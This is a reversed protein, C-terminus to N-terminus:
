FYNGRVSFSTEAFGSYLDREGGREGETHQTPTFAPTLTAPSLERERQAQAAEAQNFHMRAETVCMSPLPPPPSPAQIDYGKLQLIELAQSGPDRTWLPEQFFCYASLTKSLKARDLKMGIVQFQLRTTYEFMASKHEPPIDPTPRHIDNWLADIYSDPLHVHQDLSLSPYQDELCALYVGKLHELGAIGLYQLLPCQQECCTNNKAKDLKAAAAQEQHQLIRSDCEQLLLNLLLQQRSADSCQCSVIIHHHKGKQILGDGSADLLEEVQRKINKVIDLTAPLPKAATVGIINEGLEHGARVISERVGVFLQNSDLKKAKPPPQHPLSSGSGSPTGQSNAIILGLFQQRLAEQFTALAVPDVPSLVDKKTVDSSVNTPNGLSDGGLDPSSTSSPPQSSTIDRTSTSDVAALSPAADSSRKGASTKVPSKVDKRRGAAAIGQVVSDPAAGRRLSSRDSPAATATSGVGRRRKVSTPPSALVPANEQRSRPTAPPESVTAADQSGRAPARSGRRKSKKAM